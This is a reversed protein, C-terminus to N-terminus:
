LSKGQYELKIRTDDGIKKRTAGWKNGEFYEDCYIKIYIHKNMHKIGGQVSPLILEMLYLVM